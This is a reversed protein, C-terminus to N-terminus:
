QESLDIKMKMKKSLSMQHKTSISKDFEPIFTPKKLLSAKNINENNM